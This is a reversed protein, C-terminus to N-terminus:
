PRMEDAANEGVVTLWERVWWREILGNRVYPDGTAFAEAVSRDAGRMLVVGGDLPDTLAGALVLEGRDSAAWARTLHATRFEARREAYTDGFEFFLLFHKM